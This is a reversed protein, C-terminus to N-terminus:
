YLYHCNFNLSFCNRIVHQIDKKRSSEAIVKIHLMIGKAKGNSMMTRACVANLRKSISM